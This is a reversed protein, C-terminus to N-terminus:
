HPAPPQTAASADPAARMSKIYELLARIQEENLQGAFTPMVPQYGKVLKAMPNLISERIYADDASVKEGTALEVEHGALGALQPGIGGATDLHCTQCAKEVFLAEGLKAPSPAQGSAAATATALSGGGATADVNGTTLWSQYAAPEMVVVRGIMRSHETGCYEACFLHYDGTETAEFWTTSYHGPVVDAKTRFAPIYFSHIVDESTMTLKVPVGVPVHLENIERRGAMHQIKWMWQRGTVFIEMANDPPRSMKFYLSAGWAFIVMVILFPIGSWLIELPTNGHIDAGVVNTATRRYKRGFVILATVVALAVGSCLLILFAYLADVEFAHTSAQPPFLFLSLLM